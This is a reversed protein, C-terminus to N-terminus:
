RQCIPRFARSPADARVRRYVRAGLVIELPSLLSAQLTALTGATRDGNISGASLAPM